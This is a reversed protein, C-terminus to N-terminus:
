QEGGHLISDVPARGPNHHHGALAKANTRMWIAVLGTVLLLAAVIRRRALSSFIFRRIGLAALSLAPVTGLGFAAMALGGELPRALAVPVGLASYVLGCPLFGNVAGFLLQASPTTSRAARAGATTLGPLALRPEPVVGALGLAFWTLLLAAVLGPLWAPGPLLRGMAGALTGLLTYTAIRGAHWAPLGLPARTCSAAFAGCMGVCHLSGFLGALFSAALLAFTM